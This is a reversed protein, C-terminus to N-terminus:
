GAIWLKRWRENWLGAEVKADIVMLTERLKPWKTVIIFEFQMPFMIVSSEEELKRRKTQLSLLLVALWPSTLHNWKQLNNSMEIIKALNKKIYIVLDDKNNWSMIGYWSYLRHCSQFIIEWKHQKRIIQSLQEAAM